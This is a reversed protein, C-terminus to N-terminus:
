EIRRVYALKLFKYAAGSKLRWWGALWPNAAHEEQLYLVVCTRACCDRARDFCDYDRGSCWRLFWVELACRFFQRRLLRLV